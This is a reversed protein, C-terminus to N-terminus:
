SRGGRSYMSLIGSERALGRRAEEVTAGLYLLTTLRLRVLARGSVATVSTVAMTVVVASTKVIAMMKAVASTVQSHLIDGTFLSKM